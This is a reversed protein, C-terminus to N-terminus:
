LDRWKKKLRQKYDETGEINDIISDLLEPQSTNGGSKIQRIDQDTYEYTLKFADLNLMNSLREKTLVATTERRAKVKVWVLDGSNYNYPIGKGNETMEIVVHKRLNTPVFEARGDSYLIKFGKEPDNAEGWSLTYPNGIYIEDRTHYHGSHVILGEIDKMTIASKDVIYDGMNRGQIGQHMIVISGKPITKLHKRLVDPDHEYAIFYLHIGSPIFGAIDTKDAVILAPTTGALFNLSHEKSKENLSCHNGRLIILTGKRKKLTEIMANVCEGRLNAKTDHLDGAVILPIYLDNAKDVAQRMAKDALELTHINYHVDSILVAVPERM